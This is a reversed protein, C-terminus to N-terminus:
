DVKGLRFTWVLGTESDGTESRRLEAEGVLQAGALEVRVLGPTWVTARYTGRDLRRVTGRDGSIPGEYDLYALRHDALPRAPLGAGPRIPTDVAWTRLVGGDEFMLDWHVGQWRHELVVFRPM